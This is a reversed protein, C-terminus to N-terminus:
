PVRAPTRSPSSPVPAPQGGLVPRRGNGAVLGSPLVPVAPSVAAPARVARLLEGAVRNSVRLARGLADRSIPRGHEAQFAAAVTRAREALEASAAAGAGTRAEAPRPREARRPRSQGASADHRAGPASVPEAPAPTPVTGTNTDQGATAAPVPVAGPEAEAAPHTVAHFQRLFWPLLEAWGILLGPALSDFAAKGWDREAVAGATNLAWAALGVALLFLRPRRLERDGVGRVALFRVGVLVAVLTLDVAPAVLPRIWAWLELDVALQYVNGASFAFCLGGVTVALVTVFRRVTREGAQDAGGAPRTAAASM